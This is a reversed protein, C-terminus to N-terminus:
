GRAKMQECDNFTWRGATKATITGYSHNDTYVDGNNLNVGIVTCVDGYKKIRIFSGIQVGKICPPVTAEM